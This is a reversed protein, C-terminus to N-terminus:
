LFWFLLQKTKRTKSIWPILFFNTESLLCHKCTGSLIWTKLLWRACFGPLPKYFCYVEPVKLVCVEGSCVFLFSSMVLFPIYQIIYAWCPKFCLDEFSLIVCLLRNTFRRNNFQYSTLSGVLWFCNTFVATYLCLTVRFYLQKQPNEM